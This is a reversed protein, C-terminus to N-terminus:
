TGFGVLFSIFQWKISSIESSKALTPIYKLQSYLSCVTITYIFTMVIRIGLDLSLVVQSLIDYKTFFIGLFLALYAM